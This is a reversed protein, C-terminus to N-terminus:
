VINELAEKLAYVNLWSETFVIVKSQLEQTLPSSFYEKLMQCLIKCKPHNEAQNNNINKIEYLVMWFVDCDHM